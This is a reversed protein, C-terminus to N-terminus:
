ASTQQQRARQARRFGRFVLGKRGGARQKVVMLVIQRLCTEAIKQGSVGIRRVAGIGNKEQGARTQLLGIIVARDLQQCIRHRLRAIQRPFVNKPNGAGAQAFALVRLRRLSKGIEYFVKWIGARLQLQFRGAIFRLGTGFHLVPGPDDLQQLLRVAGKALQSRSVWIITKDGAAQKKQALREQGPPLVGIAFFRDAANIRGTQPRFPLPPPLVQEAAQFQGAAPGILRQLVAGAQEIGGGARPMLRGAPKQATFNQLNEAARGFRQLGVGVIQGAIQRGFVLALREQLGHRQNQRLILDLVGHLQQFTIDRLGGIPGRESKARKLRPSNYRM